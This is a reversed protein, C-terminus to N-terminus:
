QMPSLSTRALGIKGLARQFHMRIVRCHVGESHVPYRWRTIMMRMKKYYIGWIKVLESHRQRSHGPDRERGEGPTSASQGARSWPAFSFPGRPEGASTGMRTSSQGQFPALAPKYRQDTDKGWVSKEKDSEAVPTSLTLGFGLSAPLPANRNTSSSGGVGAGGVGVTDGASGGGYVSKLMSAGPTRRHEDFSEELLEDEEDILTPTTLDFQKRRDPRLSSRSSSRNENDLNTNTSNNNNSNALQTSTTEWTWGAEEDPSGTSLPQAPIASSPQQHHQYRQYYQENNNNNNM